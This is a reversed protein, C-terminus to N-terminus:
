LRIRLQSAVFLVVFLFLISMITNLIVVAAAHRLRLYRRIFVFWWYMHYAFWAAMAGLGAVGPDIKLTTRFTATLAIALMTPVMWIAGGPLCLCLGRLLHAKRVRAQRLSTGLLMMWGPMLFLPGLLFLTIPAMPARLSSSVGTRVSLYGSYPWVFTRLLMTWFGSDAPSLFLTGSSRAYWPAFGAGAIAASGFTVAFAILHIVLLWYLAFRVLRGVRIRHDVLLERCLRAPLLSVRSTAWWRHTSPTPAHEYSWAPGMLAPSLVRACDFELGCESCIATM